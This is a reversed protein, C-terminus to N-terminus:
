FSIMMSSYIHCPNIIIQFFHILLQIIFVFGLLKLKNWIEFYIFRHRLNQYCDFQPRDSQYALQHIFIRHFILLKFNSSLILLSLQFCFLYYILNDNIKQISHWGFILFQGQCFIHSSMKNWSSQAWKCYLLVICYYIIAVPFDYYLYCVVDTLSLRMGFPQKSEYCAFILSWRLFLKPNNISVPFISYKCFKRRRAIKHGKLISLYAYKWHITSVWRGNFWCKKTIRASINKIFYKM